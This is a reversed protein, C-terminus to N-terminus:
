KDGTRSRSRDRNDKLSSERKKNKSSLDSKKSSDPKKSKQHDEESEYDESGDEDVTRGKQTKRHHRKFAEFKDEM